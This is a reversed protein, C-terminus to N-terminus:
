GRWPASGALNCPTQLLTWLPAPLTLQKVLLTLLTVLLTSPVTLVLKLLKVPKLLWKALKTLLAKWPTALPKPTPKWTLLWAKLLKM